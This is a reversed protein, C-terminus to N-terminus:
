IINFILRLYIRIQQLQRLVHRSHLRPDYLNIHIIHFVAPFKAYLKHCLVIIRLILCEVRIDTRLPRVRDYRDLCIHFFCNLRPNDAQIYLYFFKGCIDPHNYNSIYKLPTDLM